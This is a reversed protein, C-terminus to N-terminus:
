LSCTKTKYLIDAEPPFILLHDTMLNGTEGIDVELFEQRVDKAFDRRQDKDAEGLASLMRLQIYAARM